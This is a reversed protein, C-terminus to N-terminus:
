ASVRSTARDKAGAVVAKGAAGAGTLEQRKAKPMTKQKRGIGPGM